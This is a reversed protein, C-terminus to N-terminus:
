CWPVVGTTRGTARCFRRKARNLCGARWGDGAPGSLRDVALKIGAHIQESQRFYHQLCDTLTTGALEVIGQYRDTFEGQDVTFALWGQGLLTPVDHADSEPLREHDVKAYGRLDGASTVDAVILPVAGDGKAQLTFIGDYKLASALMNALVVMEGLLRAVPEPYDHATLIGNLAPGLRVLRGRLTSAEIQFPQM